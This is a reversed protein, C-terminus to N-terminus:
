QLTEEDKKSNYNIFQILNYVGWLLYIWVFIVVFTPLLATTYLAIPNWNLCSLMWIQVIFVILANIGYFRRNRRM